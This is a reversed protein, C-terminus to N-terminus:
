NKGPKEYRHSMNSKPDELQYLDPNNMRDNFERQALGEAEAKAKERRFEHGRVHGRHPKGDIPVRLNPDIARGDAARPAAREIEADVPKRIYPRRLAKGGSPVAETQATAANAGETHTVPSQSRSKSLLWGPPVSM